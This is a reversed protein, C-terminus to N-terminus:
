YVRVGGYNPDRHEIYSCRMGWIELYVQLCGDFMKAIDKSSRTNMAPIPTLIPNDDHGEDQGHTQPSALSKLM